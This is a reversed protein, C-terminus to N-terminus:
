PSLSLEGCSQCQVPVCLDIDERDVQMENLHQHQSLQKPAKFTIVQLWSIQFLSCYLIQLQKTKMTRYKILVSSVLRTRVQYVHSILKEPSSFDLTCLPCVFNNSHDSGEESEQPFGLVMLVSKLPCKLEIHLTCKCGRCEKMVM